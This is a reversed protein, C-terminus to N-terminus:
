GGLPRPLRIRDIRARVARQLLAPYVHLVVNATLLWAFADWARYGAAVLVMASGIVALIVHGLESLRTDREFADLSARTGDFSRGARLLREWGVLRLLRMYRFVGLRRYTSPEWGRVRFWDSRLRPGAVRLADSIWAMMAFHTIWAFSPGRVGFAAGAVWAVAVVAAAGLGVRAVVQPAPARGM